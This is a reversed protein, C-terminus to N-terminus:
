AILNGTLCTDRSESIISFCMFDVVKTSTANIHFCMSYNYLIKCVYMFCVIVFLYISPYIHLYHLLCYMKVCNLLIFALAFSKGFDYRVASRRWSIMMPLLPVSAICIKNSRFKSTSIETNPSHTGHAASVHASGWGGAPQQEGPDHGLWM